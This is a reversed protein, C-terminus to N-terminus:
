YYIIYFLLGHYLITNYTCINDIFYYINYVCM